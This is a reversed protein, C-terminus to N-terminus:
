PRVKPRYHERAWAGFATLFPTEGLHHDRVEIGLGILWCGIDPQWDSEVNEVAERIALKATLPGIM